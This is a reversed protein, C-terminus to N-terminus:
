HTNQLKIEILQKEGNEEKMKALHRLKLFFARVM